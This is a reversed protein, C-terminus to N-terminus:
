WLEGKRLDRVWLLVLLLPWLAVLATAAAIIAVLFGVGATM